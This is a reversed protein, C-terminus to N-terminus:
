PIKFIRSTVVQIPKTNTHSTTLSFDYVCTCYHKGFTLQFCLDEDPNLMYSRAREASLAFRDRYMSLFITVDGTYKNWQYNARIGKLSDLEKVDMEVQKKLWEPIEVEEMEDGGIDEFDDDKSIKEEEQGEAANNGDGQAMSFPDEEDMGEMPEDDDSLVYEDYRSTM